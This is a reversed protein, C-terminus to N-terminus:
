GEFLTRFALEPYRFLLSLSLDLPFTIFFRPISILDPNASRVSRIFSSILSPLFSSFFSPILSLIFLSFRSRSCHPLSYTLFSVFHFPLCLSSSMRVTLSLSFSLRVSLHVCPRGRGTVSQSCSVVLSPLFRCFLVLGDAVCANLCVSLCVIERICRHLAAHQLQTSKSHTSVPKSAIPTGASSSAISLPVASGVGAGAGGSGMM